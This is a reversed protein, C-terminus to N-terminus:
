AVSIYDERGQFANESRQYDSAGRTAAGALVERSEVSERAVRLEQFVETTMNPRLAEAAASSGSQDQPLSGGTGNVAQAGIDGTVPEFSNRNESAM